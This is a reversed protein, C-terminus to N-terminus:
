CYRDESWDAALAEAEELAEADLLGEQRGEQSSEDAVSRAEILELERELITAGWRRHKVGPILRTGAPVAPNGPPSSIM